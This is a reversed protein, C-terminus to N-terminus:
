GKDSRQSIWVLRGNPLRFFLTPLPGAEYTGAWGPNWVWTEINGFGERSCLLEPQKKHEHAFERKKLILHEVYTFEESRFGIERFGFRKVNIILKPYFKEFICPISGHSVFSFIGLSHGEEACTPIGAQLHESIGLFPYANHAWLAVQQWHLSSPRM